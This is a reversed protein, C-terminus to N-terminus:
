LEDRRISHGFPAAGLWIGELQGNLRSVLDAGFLAFKISSSGANVVLISSGESMPRRANVAESM